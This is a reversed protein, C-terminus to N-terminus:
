CFLENRRYGCVYNAATVSSSSLSQNERALTKATDGSQVVRLWERGAASVLKSVDLHDAIWRRGEEFEAPMGMIYLTDMADVITAGLPRRGFIGASHGRKSIPRLENSGWAYTTYGKWAHQMMQLRSTLCRLVRPRPLCVM